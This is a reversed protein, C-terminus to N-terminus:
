NTHAGCPIQKYVMQFGTAATTTSSALVKAASSDSFVELNFPTQYSRLPGLAASSADYAWAEGCFGGYLPTDPYGLGLPIQVYTKLCGTGLTNEGYGAISTSPNDLLGFSDPSSSSSTHWSIGCYGLEQRVCVEYNQSSLLQGSAFGYSQVYGQSGTYYQVCDAPAAYNTECPIQTVKVNWKRLKSGLTTTSGATDSLYFELSVSDSSGTGTEIYMHYDTNTHCIVPPNKGTQGEVTLSDTAKAGSTGCSSGCCGAVTSPVGAGGIVLSAFDLRVQCVSSDCKNVKYSCTGTTTYTSPFGPNQIYTNNKSVADGCASVKFICCVGFGAACNGSASGSGDTCESSTVCVGKTTTTDTTTCESNPFQVISFLSFVRKDRTDTTNKIKAKDRYDRYQPDWGSEDVGDHNINKGRELNAWGM